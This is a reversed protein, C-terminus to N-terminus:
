TLGKVLYLSGGGERDAAYVARQFGYREYMRRAGGNNEQVELTLRCCGMETAQVLVADMLRGGIGKGRLSPEVYFDSINLLPKAAFTSFGIFSTLIGCARGEQFALFVMSTPLAQLGALLHQRAYNSLPKGDGMPDASYADMLHLIAKQHEGDGLDARVVESTLM